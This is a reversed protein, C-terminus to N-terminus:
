ERQRDGALAGAVRAGALRERRRRDFVERASEAAAEDVAFELGPYRVDLLVLPEPGAPAVGDPGSLREASLV